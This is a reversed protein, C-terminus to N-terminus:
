PTGGPRETGVAARGSEGSGRVGDPLVAEIYPTRARLAVSARQTYGYLPGAALTLMLGVAVLAGASWVMGAPLRVRSPDTPM